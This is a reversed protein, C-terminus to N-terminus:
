LVQQITIGYEQNLINFYMILLYMLLLSIMYVIAQLFIYLIVEFLSYYIIVLSILLLNVMHVIGQSFIYLDAVFPLNMFFAYIIPPVFPIPYLLTGVTAIEFYDDQTLDTESLSCNVGIM